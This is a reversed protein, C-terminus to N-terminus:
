FLNNLIPMVYLRIYFRVTLYWYIVNFFWYGGINGRYIRPIENKLNGKM